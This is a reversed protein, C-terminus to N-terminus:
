AREIAAYIRGCDDHRESLRERAESWDITAIVGDEFLDGMRVTSSLESELGLFALPWLTSCWTKEEFSSAASVVGCLANDYIVAGGSFGADVRCDVEFCPYNLFGTGRREEYVELVNAVQFTLAMGISVEDRDPIDDLTFGPFGIIYVQAGVPPPLLRWPWYGTPENTTGDIRAVQVASIDTLPSDWVHTVHWVSHEPQDADDLPNLHQFLRTAYQTFFRGRPPHECRTDLQLFHRGIHKATLGSFASTFVGSGGALLADGEDERSLAFAGFALPATRRLVRKGETENATQPVWLM